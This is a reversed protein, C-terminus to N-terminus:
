LNSGTGSKKMVSKTSEYENGVHPVTWCKKENNCRFIYMHYLGKLKNEFSLTHNCVRNGRILKYIITVFEIQDQIRTSDLTDENKTQLMKLRGTITSGGGSWVM